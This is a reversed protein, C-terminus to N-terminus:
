VGTEQVAPLNKASQAVLSAMSIGTELCFYLGIHLLLFNMLFDGTSLERRKTWIKYDVRSRQQQKTARNHGVRQLGM